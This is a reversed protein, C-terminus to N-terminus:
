GIHIIVDIDVMYTMHLLLRRLVDESDTSFFSIRAQETPRSSVSTYCSKSSFAMLLASNM